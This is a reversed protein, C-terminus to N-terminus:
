GGDVFAEAGGVPSTGDNSAGDNRPVVSYGDIRFRETMGRFSPLHPVVHRDHTGLRSQM